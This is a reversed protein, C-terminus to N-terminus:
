YAPEILCCILDAKVGNESEGPVLSLAVERGAKLKSYDPFYLVLSVKNFTGSELKFWFEPNM